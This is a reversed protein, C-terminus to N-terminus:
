NEVGAAGYIQLTLTVNQPNRPSACNVKSIRQQFHEILDLRNYLISCQYVKHTLPTSKYRVDSSSYVEVYIEIHIQKKGVNQNAFYDGIMTFIYPNENSMNGVLLDAYLM